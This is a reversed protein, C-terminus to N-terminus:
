SSPTRSTKWYRDHVRCLDERDADDRLAERSRGLAGAAMLRCDHRAEPSIAAVAALSKQLRIGVEIIAAGDRAIPRFLDDILDPFNFLPVNVRVPLSETSSPDLRLMAALVRTGSELVAIATGPDNVAPSLARSAIESLVVLGFRPDQDFARDDAVTFAQRIRSAQEEDIEATTWALPRTPDIPTGPLVTLTVVANADEAV